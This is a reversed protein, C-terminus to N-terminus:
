KTKLIISEKYAESLKKVSQNWSEFQSPELLLYNSYLKRHLLISGPKVSYNFEFGIQEGSYKTNEPIYEITYGEPVKLEIIDYAMYKFKAEKAFKRTATNIFDNYYDKSLNLNIYLEDGARQFYDSVRFNYTIRTPKDQNQLDDISYQDLYFKNSGKGLIKVIAEKINDQESLDLEYAAFVKAYGSLSSKGSGKLQNNEISVQVSDILLNVSADMAPVEKVEYRKADFSIFAEKGQIMSSPFGFPTYDSTADLFYYTGDHSIYTAIMHNDVMPSPIETYRYPLDRSGIWTYFAKVNALQLMGVIISAMDKCDGYRKECVYDAPHPVFGRMGQEFAIYKINNQVWYFINKVLDLESKSESRINEVISVLEPSTGKSLDKIFTYYWSHLDELNSLVNIKRGKLQYSKVYCIIHPAYYRIEPANSEFKLAPLNDVSWQYTVMNGKETKSFKIGSHQDNFIKYGIEVDKPAKIVYSTKVQPLYNSFVYGSIFHVDKINERYELQTRNGFAVAPFNFSYFYSDDYFVGGSPDSARKFDTVNMERYRNKDWALTKAKLNSIQSFHSGYVKRRSVADTQEKLHIIDESIDSYAQLSDNKIFITVAEERSIFVASEDPFKEKYATWVENKQSFGFQTGALILIILALKKM